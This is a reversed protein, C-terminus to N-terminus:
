GQLSGCCDSIENELFARLWPTEILVKLFSPVTKLESNEEIPAFPKAFRTGLITISSARTISNSCGDQWSVDHYAKSFYYYLIKPGLYAHIPTEWVRWQLLVVGFGIVSSSSLFCIDFLHKWDHGSCNMIANNSSTLNPEIVCSSRIIVSKLWGRWDRTVRKWLKSYNQFSEAALVVSRDM